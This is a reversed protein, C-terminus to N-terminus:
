STCGSLRGFLYSRCRPAAPCPLLCCVVFPTDAQPCCGETGRLPPQCARPQVQLPKGEAILLLAQLAAEQGGAARLRGSQGAGDMGGEEQM